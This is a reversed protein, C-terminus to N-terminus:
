VEEKNIYNKSKLHRMKNFRCNYQCERCQLKKNSIPSFREPHRRRMHEWQIFAFLSIAFLSYAWFSKILLLPTCFMVHDWNYIRCENCCKSKFFLKHFPCWINVCFMDCWYYIMFVLFIYSIDLNQNFYIITLVLNLLIWTVLVSIAHKNNKKIYKYLKEKNYNDVQIYHKLFLKGNYSHNNTYPIILFLTETILYLWIIHYIKVNYMIKYSLIDVIKNKDIIFLIISITLFISRFIFRVRSEKGM